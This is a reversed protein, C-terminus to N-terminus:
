QVIILNVINIIMILIIKHLHNQCHHHSPQHRQYHPHHASSSSTLTLILTNPFIPHLQPMARTKLALRSM